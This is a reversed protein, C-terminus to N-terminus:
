IGVLKYKHQYYHLFKCMCGCADTLQSQCMIKQFRDTLEVFQM